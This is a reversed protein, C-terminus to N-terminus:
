FYLHPISLQFYTSLTELEIILIPFLYSLIELVSGPYIFHFSIIFPFPIVSLVLGIAM